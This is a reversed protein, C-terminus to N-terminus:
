SVTTEMAAFDGFVAADSVPLQNLTKRWGNNERKERTEYNL